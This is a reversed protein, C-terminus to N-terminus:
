TACLGFCVFMCFGTHLFSSKVTIQLPFSMSSSGKEMNQVTENLVFLVHTRNPRPFLILVNKEQAKVM